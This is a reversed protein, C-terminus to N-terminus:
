RAGTAQRLCAILDGRQQANRLWAFSMSGAPVVAKPDAIGAARRGFVRQGAAADRASAGAPAALLAAAPATSRLNM